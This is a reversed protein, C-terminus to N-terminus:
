ANRKLESVIRIDNRDFYRGEELHNTIKHVVKDLEDTANELHSLLLEIESKNESNLRMVNVLGQIRCLPGRLLHANIFAYESLKENQRKLLMTRIEVKEELEQNLAYIYDQQEKLEKNIKEIQKNKEQLKLEAINRNFTKWAITLIDSVGRAFLIDEATWKKTTIQQEICLVGGLEGDLFYPVDLMSKINLPLLYTEVFEMTTENTFVDSADIVRENEIAEFYLPFNSKNLEIDEKKIEGNSFQAICVISEKTKNYSWFSVRSVNLISAVKILLVDISRIWDGSQIADHKALAMLERNYIELINKNSKLQKNLKELEITKNLLSFNLDDIYKVDQTSHATDIFFLIIRKHGNNNIVPFIFAQQKVTKSDIDFVFDAVFTEGNVIKLLNSVSQKDVEKPYLDIIKKGLLDDALLGYAECYPKSVNVIETSPLLEIIKFVKYFLYLFQEMEYKDFHNCISGINEDTLNSLLRYSQVKFFHENFFYNNM